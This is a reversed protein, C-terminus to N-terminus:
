SNGALWRRLSNVAKARAAEDGSPEYKVEPLRARKKVAGWAMERIALDADLLAELLFEDRRPHKGQLVTRVLIGRVVKESEKRYLESFREMLDESDMESLVEAAAIRQNLSPSELMEFLTRTVVRDGKFALLGQSAIVVAGQDQHQLYKLLYRIGRTDRWEALLRALLVEGRYDVQSDALLAVVVESGRDAGLRKLRAVAQQQRGRKFSELDRLVSSNERLWDTPTLKEEPASSCGSLMVATLLMPGSTWFRAM